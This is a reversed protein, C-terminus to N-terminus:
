GLDAVDVSIAATEPLHIREAINVAWVLMVQLPIQACAYARRLLHRVGIDANLGLELDVPILEAVVWWAGKM